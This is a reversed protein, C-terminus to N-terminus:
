TPSSATEPSPSQTPAASKSAASKTARRRRPTSAEKSPSSGETSPVPSPEAPHLDEAQTLLLPPQWPTVIETAFDYEGPRLLRALQATRTAESVPDLHGADSYAEVVREWCSATDFPDLGKLKGAAKVPGLGRCGDYGDVSDGSLTQIWFLLLAEHETVVSGPDDLWIHVGPVQRLDKDGSAVVYEHPKMQNAFLSILDDCEIQAHMLSQKHGIMETILPGYGPPKIKDKRNSKYSPCIERRFLSRDTWCLVAAEPRADVMACLQDVSQWFVERAQGHDLQMVYMDPGLRASVTCGAAARFLLMDADILVATM